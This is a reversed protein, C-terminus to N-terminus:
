SQRKYVDIVSNMDHTNIITTMNYETTIDHILKIMGLNLKLPKGIWEVPIEFSRRFWVVGDFDKLGNREWYGPLHTYSVSGMPVEAKKWLMLVM